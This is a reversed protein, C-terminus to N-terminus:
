SSANKMQDNIELLEASLSNIKVADERLEQVVKSAQDIVEAPIPLSAVEGDFPNDVFKDLQEMIFVHDYYHPALSKGSPATPAPGQMQESPPMSALPQTLKPAFKAVEEKSPASASAEQKASSKLKRVAPIPISEGPKASSVPADMVLDKMDIADPHPTTDVHQKM